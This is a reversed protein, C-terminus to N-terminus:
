QTDQRETVGVLVVDNVQRLSPTTAYNLIPIQKVGEPTAPYTTSVLPAGILCVTGNNNAAEWYLDMRANIAARSSTELVWSGNDVDIDGELLGGRLQIKGARGTSVSKRMYLVLDDDVPEDTLFEVAGFLGVPIVRLKSPDYPQGDQEWTSLVVRDIQVNELLLNQLGEVLDLGIVEAEGAALEGAYDYELTHTWEETPRNEFRMYARVTIM